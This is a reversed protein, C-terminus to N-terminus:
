QVPDCLYLSRFVLFLLMILYGGVAECFSGLSFVDIDCSVSSMNVGLSSFVYIKWPVSWSVEPVECGRSGGQSRGSGAWSRDPVWISGSSVGLGKLHKLDECDRLALRHRSQACRVQDICMYIYICLIINHIYMYVYIYINYTVPLM